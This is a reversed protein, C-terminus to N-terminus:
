KRTLARCVSCFDAFHFEVEEVLTNNEMLKQKELELQAQQQKLLDEPSNSEDTDDDVDDNEGLFLLKDLTIRFFTMVKLDILRENWM